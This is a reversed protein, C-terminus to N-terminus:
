NSILCCYQIHQNTMKTNHILNYKSSNVIKDNNSYHKDVITCVENYTLGRLSAKGYEGLEGYEDILLM